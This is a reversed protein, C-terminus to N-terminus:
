GKAERRRRRFEAVKARNGCAAMSCWRRDGGRWNDIFLLTCTPSQCQRIHAANESGFMRVASRALSTILLNAPGGLSAKGDASLQPAASLGQALSNLLNRDQEPYSNGLARGTALNFIAERLIKVQALDPLGTAAPTPSLGAAVLWRAVDDPSQLLERPATKLRGQVTATLDLAPHGGRFRFGDREDSQVEGPNEKHM